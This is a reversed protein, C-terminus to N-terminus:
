SSLDIDHLAPDPPLIFLNRMIEQWREQEQEKKFKENKLTENYDIVNKENKNFHTNEKPNTYEVLFLKLDDKFTLENDFIKIDPINEQSHIIEKAKDKKENMKDLYASDISHLVGNKNYCLLYVYIDKKQDHRDIRGMAQFIRQPNWWFELIIVHNAVPLNIGEASKFLTTLMIKVSPNSKFRALKWKFDTRDEGTIIVSEFGYVKGLENLLESYHYLVNKYQSFIIVKDDKLTNRVIFRVTDVKTCSLDEKIVTNNKFIAKPHSLFQELLKYSPKHKNEFLAKNNSIYDEMEHYLPISLIVKSKSIGRSNFVNKDNVTQKTSQVVINNKIADDYAKSLLEKINDCEELNLFTKPKNLLIHILGLDHHPFNQAPTASLFLRRSSKIFSIEISKNTLKSPNIITHIEDIIVLDFLEMKEFYEIDKVATEHSTLLVRQNATKYEGNLRIGLREKGHISIYKIKSKSLEKRWPDDLTNAKTIILIKNYGQEMLKQIVACAILTKGEGIPLACVSNIGIEFNKFIERIAYEQNPTLEYPIENDM